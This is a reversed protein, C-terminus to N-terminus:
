DTNPLFPATFVGDRWVIEDSEAVSRAAFPNAAFSAPFCGDPGASAVLLEAGTGKERLLIVVPNRWQDRSDVDLLEVLSGLPVIRGPGSADAVSAGVSASTAAAAIASVRRLAEMQRHLRHVGVKFTVGVTGLLASLVLIAIETRSLGAARRMKPAQVHTLHERLQAVLEPLSGKGTIFSLLTVLTALFGVFVLITQM